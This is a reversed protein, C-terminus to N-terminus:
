AKVKVTIASDKVFAMPHNSDVDGEATAASAAIPLLFTGVIFCVASIKSKM